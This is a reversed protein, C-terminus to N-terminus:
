VQCVKSAEREKRETPDPPAERGLPDWPATLVWRVQVELREPPAGPDTQDQPALAEQPELRAGPGPTVVSVKVVERVRTARDAWAGLRARCAQNATLEAREQLVKSDLPARSASQDQSAWVEPDERSARRDPPDESEESGLPDSTERPAERVRHGPSAPSVPPVGSEKPDKPEKCDTPAQSDLPAWKDPAVTLDLPALLDLCEPQATLEPPGLPALKEPPEQPDPVASKVLAALSAALVVSAPPETLARPAPGAPPAPCEVTAPSVETEKTGWPDLPGRPAASEGPDPPDRCALVASRARAEWAARREPM